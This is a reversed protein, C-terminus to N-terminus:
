QYRETPPGNPPAQRGATAPQAQGSEQEDVANKV